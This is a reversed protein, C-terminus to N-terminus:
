VAVARAFVEDFEPHHTKSMGGEFLIDQVTALATEAQRAIGGMILSREYAATKKVGHQHAGQIANYLNWGTLVELRGDDAKHFTQIVNIVAREWHNRTRETIEEGEKKAPFPLMRAMAEKAEEMTIRRDALRNYAIESSHFVGEALHLAQAVERLRGQGKADHRISIIRNNRAADNIAKSIQNECFFRFPTVLIQMSRSGDHSNVVSLYRGVKDGTAGIDMSNGLSVQAYVGAGNGWSGINKFDVDAIDAMEGIVSFADENQVPIYQDTFSRGHIVAEAGSKDSRVPTFMGTPVYVGDVLAFTEAMEAKFNLSKSALAANVKELIATNM